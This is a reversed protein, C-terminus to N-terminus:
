DVYEILPCIKEKKARVFEIIINEKPLEPSKGLKERLSTIAILPLVTSLMFFLFIILIPIIFPSTILKFACAVFFVAFLLLAVIKFVLKWFYLCLSDYSREYGELHNLKYHWSSRKIKM